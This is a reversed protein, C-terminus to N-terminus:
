SCYGLWAQVIATAVGGAIAAAIVTLANVTSPIWSRKEARKGLAKTHLDRATQELHYIESPELSGSTHHGDRDKMPGSARAWRSHLYYWYEQKQSANIGYGHGFLEPHDKFVDEWKSCSTPPGGMHKGWAELSQGSYPSYGMVIIARIVDDLRREKLYPNIDKHKRRCVRSCLSKLPPVKACFM